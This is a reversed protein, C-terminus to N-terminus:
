LFANCLSLKLNAEFEIFAINEIVRCSSKWNQIKQIDSISWNFNASMHKISSDRQQNKVM